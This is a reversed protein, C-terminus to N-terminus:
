ANAIAIVFKAGVSPQGTESISWGYVQVIRKLISLGLGSSNATSFGEGFIREKNEEAIGVGNDEYILLTEKNGKEYHLKIETVKQGHKISNDVLNYFVQQLLSDATVTLGDACNTIKINKLDYFMALAKNFCTKVEIQTPEEIGIREFLSSLAFLHDASAVDAEIKSLLRLLEPEDALKKRLLYSNASIASLRNRVDHRTIGGVFHLKQNIIEMKQKSDIIEQEANKRETIDRSIGRYGVWEGQKNFIPVGSTEIIIPEGKGNFALTELDHFPKLQSVVKQFYSLGDNKQDTPMMDFPTKGMLQEPKYGWLRESQPSCYTYRGQTDMEWIFDSTVEIMNRYRDQSERVAEEAAKRETLPVALELANV